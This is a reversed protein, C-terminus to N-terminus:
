RGIKRRYVKIRSCTSKFVRKVKRLAQKVEAPKVTAAEDALKLKLAMLRAKYAEYLALKKDQVTAMREQLKALKFKTTLMARAAATLRNVLAGRPIGKAADEGEEVRVPSELLRRNGSLKDGGEGCNPPQINQACTENDTQCYGTVVGASSKSTCVEGCKCPNDGGGTLGGGTGGTGTGGGGITGTGTIGGTTGTGGGDSGTTGVNTGTATGEGDKVPDTSGPAEEDGFDVGSNTTCTPNTGGVYTGNVNDCQGECTQGASFHFNKCQHVTTLAKEDDGGTSIDDCQPTITHACTKNDTQCIGTVDKADKCAEGCKCYGEV